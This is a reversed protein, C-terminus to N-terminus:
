SRAVTLLQVEASAGGERRIDTLVPTSVRFGGPDPVDFRHVVTAVQDSRMDKVVIKAQYGGPPLEFERRIPFWTKRLRERTAPLLRTEVKQDYRFFEGTERHSTM